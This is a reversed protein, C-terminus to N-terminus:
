LYASSRLLKVVINEKRPPWRKRRNIKLGPPDPKINKLWRHRELFDKAEQRGAEIQEPTLKLLKYWDDTKM